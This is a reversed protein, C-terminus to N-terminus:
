DFFGSIISESSSSEEGFDDYVIKKMKLVEDVSELIAEQFSDTYVNNKVSVAYKYLEEIPINNEATFLTLITINLNRGFKEAHFLMTVCRNKKSTFRFIVANQYSVNTLNLASANERSMTVEGDFDEVMNEFEHYLKDASYKQGDQLPYTKTWKKVALSYDLQINKMKVKRFFVDYETDKWDISSSDFSFVGDQSQYIKINATGGSSLFKLREQADPWLQVKLEVLKKLVLLELDYLEMWALASVFSIFNTSGSETSKDSSKSAVDELWNLIDKQYEMVVTNGGIVNWSYIRALMVETCECGKYDSYFKFVKCAGEFLSVDFPKKGAYFWVAVLANIFDSENLYESIKSYESLHELSPKKVLKLNNLHNEIEELRSNLANEDIDDLPRIFECNGYESYKLFYPIYFGSQLTDHVFTDLESIVSDYEMTEDIFKLQKLLSSIHFIYTDLSHERKCHSIDIIDEYIITNIKQIYNKYESNWMAHIAYDNKSHKIELLKGLNGSSSIFEDKGLGITNYLEKFLTSIESKALEEKEKREREIREKERQEAEQKRREEELRKRQEEEYAFRAQENAERKKKILNKIVIIAVIILILIIFFM